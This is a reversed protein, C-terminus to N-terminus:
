GQLLFQIVENLSMNSEEEREQRKTSLTTYESIEQVIDRMQHSFRQPQYGLDHENVRLMTSTRITRLNM